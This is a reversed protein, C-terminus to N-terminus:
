INFTYRSDDSDSSNENKPNEKEKEKEKEEKKETYTEELSGFREEEFAIEEVQLWEQIWQTTIDEIAPPIVESLDLQAAQICCTMWALPGKNKFMLSLTACIAEIMSATHGSIRLQDINIEKCPLLKELFYARLTSRIEEKPFDINIGNIVNNIISDVASTIKIEQWKNIVRQIKHQKPFCQILKFILPYNRPELDHTFEVKEFDILEFLLARTGKLQDLAERM